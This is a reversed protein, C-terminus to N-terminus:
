AIAYGSRSSVPTSAGSRNASPLPYLIERLFGYAALSTFYICPLYYLAMGGFIGLIAPANGPDKMVSLRVLVIGGIVLPLVALFMLLVEVAILRSLQREVCRKFATKLLTGFGLKEM